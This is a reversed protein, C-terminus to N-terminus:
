DPNNGAALQTARSKGRGQRSLARGIDAREGRGERSLTLTLPYMIMGNGDESVGGSVAPRSKGREGPPLPDPHPPVYDYWEWGRVGRLTSAPCNM